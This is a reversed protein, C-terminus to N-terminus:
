EGPHMNYGSLPISSSESPGLTLASHKSRRAGFYVIAITMALIVVAIIAIGIIGPTSGALSFGSYSNAITGINLPCPPSPTLQSM